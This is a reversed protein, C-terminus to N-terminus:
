KIEVPEPTKKKWSVCVSHGWFTFKHAAIKPTWVVPGNNNIIINVMKNIKNNM